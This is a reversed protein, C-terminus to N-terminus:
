ILQETENFELTQLTLAGLHKFCMEKLNADLSDLEFLVNQLEHNDNEQFFGYPMAERVVVVDALRFGCAFDGRFCWFRLYLMNWGCPSASLQGHIELKGFVFGYMQIPEPMTAGADGTFCLCRVNSSLKGTFCLCRVNSSLKEAPTAM